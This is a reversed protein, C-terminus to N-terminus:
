DNKGNAALLKKIDGVTKIDAIQDGTLEVKYEEELQTIFLMHTMSDWAEFDTLKFDDSLETEKADFVSQLISYLKM